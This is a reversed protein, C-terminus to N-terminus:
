GGKRTSFINLKKFLSVLEMGELLNIGPRDTSLLDRNWRKEAESVTSRINIFFGL